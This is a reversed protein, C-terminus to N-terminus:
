GMLEDFAAQDTSADWFETVRGDRMHYVHAENVTVSKGGRSATGVVLAVGHEDDAFVAHLDLHFTGDTLEMLKGFFEYVEDRGRYDGTLQNRGGVHWRIDDAFLDNLVAFDGKAFAAYGDRMRTVNPHEAM